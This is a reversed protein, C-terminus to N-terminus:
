PLKNFEFSRSPPRRTNNLFEPYLDSNSDIFRLVDGQFKLAQNKARYVVGKVLKRTQADSFIGDAALRNGFSLNQMDNATVFRYYAWYKLVEELGNFRVEEGRKNEYDLGKMLAEFRRDNEEGDLSFGQCSVPDVQTSLISMTAAQESPNLFTIAQKGTAQSSLSDSDITAGTSDQLTLTINYNVTGAYQSIDFFGVFTQAPITGLEIDIGPTANSLGLDWGTPKFYFEEPENPSCGLCTVGIRIGSYNSFDWFLPTTELDFSNLLLLYLEDGLFERIEGTQAELIYPDMQDAEVNKSLNGAITRVDSLDILLSDQSM